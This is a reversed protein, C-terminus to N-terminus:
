LRTNEYREILNTHKWEVVGCENCNLVGQTGKALKHCICKCIAERPESNNKM